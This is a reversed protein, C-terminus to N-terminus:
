PYQFGRGNWRAVRRMCYYSRTLYVSRRQRRVPRRPQPTARGGDGAGLALERLLAHREGAQLGSTVQVPAPGVKPGVRLVRVPLGTLSSPWSALAPGVEYMEPATAPGGGGGGGGGCHSVVCAHGAPLVQQVVTRRLQAQQGPALAVHQASWAWQQGACNGTPRAYTRM